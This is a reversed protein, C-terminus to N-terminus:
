AEVSKVPEVDSAVPAPDLPVRQRVERIKAVALEAVDVDAPQVGERDDSLPVKVLERDDEYVVLAEGCYGVQAFLGNVNAIDPEYRHRMIRPDKVDTVYGLSILRDKDFM